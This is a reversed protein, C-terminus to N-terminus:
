LKRMENIIICIVLVSVYLRNYILKINTNELYLDDCIRNAFVWASEDEQITRNKILSRVKSFVDIFLGSKKQLDSMIITYQYSAKYKDEEKLNMVQAVEEFPPISIIMADEILRTFDSRSVGKNKRVENFSANESLLEYQQRRTLLELMANYITKISDLTIKPYKKNLFEGMEQEVIEKHKPISLTTRMHVFKSLDVDEKEIGRKQAIDQKIKSVTIPNFEEFSTKERVYTEKIEKGNNEKAAVYIKLPCNTILGLENVIWDTRELQAYLKTLWDERIATSISISEENTKMQYYNVFEPNSECEFLTIDDYYDLVLLYDLTDFFEIAMHLSQSIQMEFRNYAKSGSTTDIAIETSEGKVGLNVLANSNLVVDHHIDNEKM